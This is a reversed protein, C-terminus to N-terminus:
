PTRPAIASISVGLWGAIMMAGGIPAAMPFLRAHGIERWGLDACFLFLGAALIYSSVVLIRSAASRGLATALLAPAHFLLMSSIQGAYLTDGHAARAALAVGAAGALGSLIILYRDFTM